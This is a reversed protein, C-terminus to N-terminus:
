EEAKMDSQLEEILGDVTYKYELVMISSELQNQEHFHEEAIGLPNSKPSIKFRDFPKPMRIRYLADYQRYQSSSIIQMGRILGSSLMQNFLVVVDQEVLPESRIPLEETPMFLGTGTIILPYNQEHEIQQNKWNHLEFEESFLSATGPKRLLRYHRRLANVASVSLKEAVRVVEPQFGKRGLDPEANEFHVLIHAQNQLGINSTMPIRLLSGQPMNRTSLQIGGRLLRNGKRLEIENDNYNDWLSTSFGLFIHLALGLDLILDKENDDLNRPNIPCGSSSDLIEDASWEGWIGNLQRFKPPITSVDQGREVRRRQDVLYERIDAVNNTM